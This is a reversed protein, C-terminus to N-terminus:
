NSEGILQARGFGTSPGNGGSGFGLGTTIATTTDKGFTQGGVAQAAALSSAANQEQKLRDAQEAALKAQASAADQSQLYNLTGFSVATAATVVAAVAAVGAM